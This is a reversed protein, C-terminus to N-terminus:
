SPFANKFILFNMVILLDYVEPYGSNFCFSLITSETVWNNEMFSFKNMANEFIETRTWGSKRLSFVPFNKHLLRGSTLLPINPCQCFLGAVSIRRLLCCTKGLFIQPVYFLLLHLQLRWPFWWLILELSIQVQSVFDLLYLVEMLKYQSAM